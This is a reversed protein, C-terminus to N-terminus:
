RIVLCMELILVKFRNMPFRAIRASRSINFDSEKDKEIGNDIKTQAASPIHTREFFSHKLSNRKRGNQISMREQARERKGLRERERERM